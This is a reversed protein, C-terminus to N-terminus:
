LLRDPHILLFQPRYLPLFFLLVAWSIRVSNRIRVGFKESMRKQQAFDIFDAPIFKQGSCDRLDCYVCSQIIDYLNFITQGQYELVSITVSTYKTDSQVQSILASLWQLNEVPDETNCLVLTNEKEHCSISVLTFLIIVRFM